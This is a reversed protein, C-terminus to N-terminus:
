RRGAALERVLVDLVPEGPLASRSRAVKRWGWRRFAGQAPGAAPWVLAAAREEGREGLILDHLDAGIGQRRWAARVVLDALAFTRGPREETLEEPLPATVERWWSTSPRLPAGFAYGVLYDGSRAEALAFGPQRGQVRLQRDFLGALGAGFGYPPDAYAEAHLARLEDAHGAAARGDLRRLTM